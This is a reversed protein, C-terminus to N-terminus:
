AGGRRCAAIANARRDYRIALMRLALQSEIGLSLLHRRAVDFGYETQLKLAAAIHEATDPDTRVDNERAM